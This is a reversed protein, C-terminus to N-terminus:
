HYTSIKEVLIPEQDAKLTLSKIYPPNNNVGDGNMNSFMSESAMVPIAMAVLLLIVTVLLLISKRM